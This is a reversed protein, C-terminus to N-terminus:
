SLPQGVRLKLETIVTEKLAKNLSEIINNQMMRLEQHWAPHDVSIHLIGNQLYLVKSHQAILPGVTSKWHGQILLSKEIRPGCINKLHNDLVSKLSEFNQEKKQESM